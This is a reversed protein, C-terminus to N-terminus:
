QRLTDFRRVVIVEDDCAEQVVDAIYTTHQSTIGICFKHHIFAAFRDRKWAACRVCRQHRIM